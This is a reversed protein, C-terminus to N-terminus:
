INIILPQKILLDYRNNLVAGNSFLVRRTNSIPVLTVGFNDHIHGSCHLKLGRLRKTIVTLLDSCGAHGDYENEQKYERVDDLIGYCPTHTLLVNVDSPIKGWQQMIEQGRDANFAWHERHFSPSYPSGYFKIGEYVYDKGNLYVVDYNQILQLAQNYEDLMRSWGFMNNNNRAKQAENKDLVLDHNGAIFIKKAAPQAEFWILFKNLENINTRGGIDGTHVLVDSDPLQLEEHLGHTDSIHILKM